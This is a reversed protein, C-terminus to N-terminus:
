RHLRLWRRRNGDTSTPLPHVSLLSDIGTGRSDGQKTVHIRLVILGIRDTGFAESGFAEAHPTSPINVYTMAQDAVLGPSPPHGVLERSGAPPAASRVGDTRLERAPVSCGDGTTRTSAAAPASGPATNTISTMSPRWPTRKRHSGYV